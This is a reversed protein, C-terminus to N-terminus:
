IRVVDVERIGERLQFGRDRCLDQYVEEWGKGVAKADARHM